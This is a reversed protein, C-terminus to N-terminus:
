ATLKRLAAVARILDERGGDSRGPGHAAGFWGARGEAVLRQFLKRRNAAVEIIGRDFLWRIPALLGFPQEVAHCYLWGGLKWKWNLALPLPYIALPKGTALADSVMSVSDSTVIIQDAAALLPRYLNPGDGYVHLLNPPAVTEALRAVVDKPTRPSTHVAVTGSASALVDAAMRGATEGDLRDPFAPGGVILATLPREEAYPYSAEAGAAQAFSLPMSLEVVNDAAPIRYQATTIVLDFGAATGAPRGICVIRTRGGSLRKVRRAVVSPSAEACLILHPWPPVLPDSASRLLLNSLVPIEPGLFTLRKITYSLGAASALAEMQDLDGKRGRSLIWCTPEGAM